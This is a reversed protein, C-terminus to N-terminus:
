CSSELGFSTGLSWIAVWTLGRGRSILQLEAGCTQAALCGQAARPPVNQSVKPSRKPETKHETKHLVQDDLVQWCDVLHRAQPQELM